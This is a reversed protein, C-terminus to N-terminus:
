KVVWTGDDKVAITRKEATDSIKIEVDVTDKSFTMGVRGKINSIVEPNIAPKVKEKILNGIQAEINLQIWRTKEEETKGLFNHLGAYLPWVNRGKRILTTSIHNENVTNWIYEVGDNKFSVWIVLNKINDEDVDIIEATIM